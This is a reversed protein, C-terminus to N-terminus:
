SSHNWRLLLKETENNKCEIAIAPKKTPHQIVEPNTQKEKVWWFKWNECKKTTRLTVPRDFVNWLELGFNGYIWTDSM